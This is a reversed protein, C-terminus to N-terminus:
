VCSSPSYLAASISVHRSTCVNFVECEVLCMFSCRVQDSLVVDCFFRESRLRQIHQRAAEEAASLEASQQEGDVETSSVGSPDVGDKSIEESEDPSSAPAVAQAAATAAAARDKEAGGVAFRQRLSAPLMQHM